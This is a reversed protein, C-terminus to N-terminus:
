RVEVRRWDHYDMPNAEWGKVRESLLYVNPNFYLPIVPLESLLLAEAEEFRRAELLRDYDNNKWGTYNNPNDSKFLNLFDSPDNIDAIWGTRTLSFDGSARAALYSKWEMNELAISQGFTKKWQGQLTEAVAKRAESSNFRYALKAFQEKETNALSEWIKKAAEEDECLSLLPKYGGGTAPPVINLAEKQGARLLKECLEGRNLSLSLM